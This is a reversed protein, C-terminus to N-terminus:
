KYEELKECVQRYAFDLEKSNDIVVKCYSRFIEEGSQSEMIKKVKEKSYGREDILRRMRVLDEAYIYWLEDCIADYGDEILLAAEVFFFSLIGERKKKEIECIIFDKVAPHIVQNVRKLLEKDSFIRAAMKKRDLKKDQTLVEKGLLTVLKEYCEQGPEELHHAVEDAMLIECDKREGILNLLSSKGAGVGGTVGIVKM